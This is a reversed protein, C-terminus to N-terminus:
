AEAVPRRIITKLNEPKARTPDGLYIEHHRGALQYGQEEIFAHLLAITPEEESYPGVHMVQACKGEAFRELRVKSAITMDNALAAEIGKDIDAQTVFDPQMIMMTWKWGAELDGWLGQLPMVKYAIQDRDKIAFRVPYSVSYLAGIGDRFRENGPEGTGDFMLFQMEPVDVIAPKGKRASYIEKYENKFDISEM